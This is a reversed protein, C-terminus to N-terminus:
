EPLYEDRWFEVCAEAEEVHAGSEVMREVCYEDSQLSSLGRLSPAIDTLVVLAQQSMPPSISCFPLVQTLVNPTALEKSDAERPLTILAKVVKPLSAVDPLYHITLDIANTMLLYQLNQFTQLPNSSENATAPHLFLVACHIGGTLSAFHDLRPIISANCESETVIMLRFIYNKSKFTFPAAL